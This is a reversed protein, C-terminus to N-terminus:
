APSGTLRRLDDGLLRKIEVALQRESGVFLGRDPLHIHIPQGGGPAATRTTGSNVGSGPTGPPRNIEHYTITVTVKKDKIKELGDAIANAKDAANGMADAATKAWGFGPVKGLVGLMKSWIELVTAVGKIIFKFAPQLANNWLWKGAEGVAEIATKVGNFAPKIAKEWMWKGAEGVARFAKDVIAKFTDSKKYALILGGVLLAIATVVLGIPNAKMVANLAKSAVTHITTVATWIKTAVSVLKVIALMGAITGIIAAAAVQNQDIWEVVKMGYESAKLLVPLLKVGIEEQLEGFAVKLRQQKGTATEAASSAAGKYTNALDKQVQEFSKTKGEADKTAIGYKSLASVNGSAYAKALKKSVTEVSEGKRAAIDMAITALDQAKTVDKTATVLSELAPRLQDDAVGLAKGQASIWDEVGAVDAARAGTANKLASALKVQSAQDEAAAQAAKAGAVVALGLGAALARGALKGATQLKSTKTTVTDIGAAASKGDATIKVALAVSKDM